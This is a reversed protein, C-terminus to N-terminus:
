TMIPSIRYLAFERHGLSESATERGSATEIVRELIAQGADELTLTGDIIGSLDMDINEGMVGVIGSNGTVKLVPSSAFGMPTGRGTTFIVIHAGAASLGLTCMLDTGPTDVFTVGPLVAKGGFPVADQITEKGIKCVAGLSKEEITTLGGEINGPSPNAGRLDIGMDIATQEVFKIRDTIFEAIAPTRSQKIVIDEAGMLETTEGFVVKGGLSCLKESFVGVAPNSAIGSTFDSGGCEVGITLASPAVETREQEALMKEFRRCIEIGKTVTKETGGFEQMVILEVNPQEKAIEEFLVHPRIEECGLGIVLCAGNNPHTGMLALCKQSLVLDDGPQDCGYPHAYSDATEVAGAIADAIHNVCGVTPIVAIRNRIGYTGNARPYMMLKKM